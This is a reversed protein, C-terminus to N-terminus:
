IEGREILIERFKNIIEYGVEKPLEMEGIRYDYLISNCGERLDNFYKMNDIECLYVTSDDFIELLYSVKFEYVNPCLYIELSINIENDRIIYKISELCNDSVIIPCDPYENIIITYQIGYEVDEKKGEYITVLDNM